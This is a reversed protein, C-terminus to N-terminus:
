TAETYVGLSFATKVLRRAKSGWMFELYRKRNNLHVSIKQTQLCYASFVLKPWGPFLCRLKSGQKLIGWMRGPDSNYKWVKPSGTGSLSSLCWPNLASGACACKQNSIFRSANWDPFELFFLFESLEGSFPSWKSETTAFTVALALLAFKWQMDWFPTIPVM